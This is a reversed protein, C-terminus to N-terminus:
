LPTQHKTHPLQLLVNNNHCLSERSINFYLSKSFIVSWFEHSLREQWGCISVMLLSLAFAYKQCHACCTRVVFRDWHTIWHLAWYWLLQPLLCVHWAPKISEAFLLCISILFEFILLNTPSTHATKALLSLIPSFLITFIPMAVILSFSLNVAIAWYHM